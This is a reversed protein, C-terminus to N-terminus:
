SWHSSNLRTSKRDVKMNRGNLAFGKDPDFQLTRLGLRTDAEDVVKGDRKLTAHLTYLYPSELSWFRPNKWKLMLENKRDASIRGHARAVVNGDRDAIAVDATLRGATPNEDVAELDVLVEAQSPTLKSCRWGVGWLAFRANEAGVLYVDRYIGSGTYWRSDAERSHDVRVAIVNDEGAPHLYPTIDYAVSVYGNPREGVLHGNVYVKSRNYVGEFYLFQRPAANESITFHKRYWGIGGPFYGTCSNLTPAALHEISWDHPLTLARWGSDVHEVAAMDPSDSLNFLWGDNFLTAKGFSTQAPMSIIGSMAVIATLIIKFFKM